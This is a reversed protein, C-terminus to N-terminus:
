FKTPCFRCFYFHFYSKSEQAFSDSWFVRWFPFLSHLYFRIALDEIGWDSEYSIGFKFTVVDVDPLIAFFIGVILLRLPIIIKGLMIWISIPVATHTMITPM